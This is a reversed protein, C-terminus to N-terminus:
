DAKVAKYIARVFAYCGLFSLSGFALSVGGCLIASYGLYLLAPTLGALPDLGTALFYVCFLFLYLGLSGGSLFSRWWWRYDEACLTLYTGVLSMEVSVLAALALTFLLFGYAYFAHYEFLSSFVFQWEVLVLAYPMVGSILAVALPHRLCSGGVPVERPILNTASPNETPPRRAAMRGGVLSAPLCVLAWLAFLALMIWWPVGGVSGTHWICVNLVLLLAFVPLFFASQAVVCARKWGAAQRTLEVVQRAAVYGGIPALLFYLVLVWTMLGGRVVPSVLGAAATLLAGSGVASLHAGTGVLACLNGPRPPGRFVDGACLKWGTEDDALPLAEKDDPIDLISRLRSYKAIDTWVTRLLIVAVLLSVLLAVLVSNVMSYVHLEPSHIQLFPEWREGWTIESLTFHVAYGYRLPGARVEMVDEVTLGSNASFPDKACLAELARPDSRGEEPEEGPFALAAMRANSLSCPRVEFGVVNWAGRELESPHMLINFIFFNNLLFVDDRAKPEAAAPEAAGRTVAATGLDFGRGVREFRVHGGSSRTERMVTEVDYKTVPLNDLSLSVRFGEDIKERLDAAQEESVELDCLLSPPPGSPLREAAGGGPDRSPDPRPGEPPVTFVFPSPRIRGGIFWEGLSERVPATGGPPACVPLSYYDYPLGVDAASRLANVRAALSDGPRLARPFGGPVYNARAGGPPGLLGGGGGRAAAAALALWGAAAPGGRGRGRGRRRGRPM